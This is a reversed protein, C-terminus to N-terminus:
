NIAVNNKRGYGKVMYDFQRSVAISDKDYFTIVFGELTKGTIKYYDGQEANDQSIGISPSVGPGAFAPIHNITTGSPSSTLNQSSEIRDSMDARIIGDYVRPTVSPLNSKLKLRFQFIRATFDGMTFSTWPGWNDTNGESMTIIADLSPWDSMANYSDTSRFQTEVDWESFNSSSLSLVSDLTIWNSMLDSDTFGEAEILSQLRVTYIEGLDLLNAYYYYGLPYYEDPPGSFAIKSLMLTNGISVATDLGGPLTPFDTTEEIINLNTLSPISTIAKAANVSQNGNRDIAKVLYTGTRAQASTLTTNRDTRILPISAEWNGDNNPTYRILYEEADCDTIGTWNLQIVEGTVNIYLAEVDSPPVVKRLPVATVFSAVEGLALKQGNAAVAVVKFIHTIGLNEEDVVYRYDTLNTIDELEFGQGYDAYIEFQSFAGFQPAEWRLDVYYIYGQGDCGYTNEVLTLNRIESPATLASDINQNLAPNYDPIADTSEALYIDPALEVLTIDASFDDRPIVSKVLCDITIRSVEGIIILDGVEPVVGVLDFTRPDVFSLTGTYIAGDSSDRFKYGYSTAPLEVLEEDVTIQSASKSTVRAATGGVRMVDQTLLVYDGRTCVLNEFDVSISINEQRLKGQALMFRGFRYAQEFNTCAFTDLQDFVLSNSIDKGENYVTIENQEWGSIPDIYKVKIGDALEVYSRQSSFNWSNRPTFVQVPVTKLRDILMGYKGDIISLSAQCQTSIRNIMSNLTTNFDLIFNSQYRTFTYTQSPPSDPIEDCFNAWELFSDANLRSRDISRKNIEGTLLDSVIWAPNNTVQKEWAVGNYVDLVSNVVGSLNRLSGNIQNTAKIKLELFLHRKLTKIPQRDFRTSLNLISIDSVVQFSFPSYTRVRTIRVKYNTNVIPTFRASGYIANQSNGTFRILGLTPTTAKFANSLSTEIPTSDLSGITGSTIAYISWQDVASPFNARGDFSLYASYLLIDTTTAQQLEYSYYGGGIDTKSLITGIVQVGYKLQLNVAVNSSSIITSTGAKIGVNVKKIALSTLGFDQSLGPIYTSSLAVNNWPGLSEYLVDYNKINPIVNIDTSVSDLEVKNYLAFNQTEASQGNASTYAKVFLGDNFNVWDETGVPAFEIKLEVTATSRIGATDISQLGRPAAFDVIIEQEDGNSQTSANRIIQYGAIPGAQEENSLIAVNVQNTEVDGKYIDFSNYTADDWVGESIAPKNLDVLRYTVGTFNIIPTGGIQIDELTAPGFGFDYIAYLYQVLEGTEPDAEIETYSNAALNPFMKHSGYVKPVYGYKKSNNSQGSLSYMQSEAPRQAYDVNPLSPEEVPWIAGLLLTSGLAAAAAGYPGGFFGGVATSATIIVSRAIERFNGGKPIVALLIDSNNKPYITSWYKKEIEHGNIFVTFYEGMSVPLHYEGRMEDYIKQISKKGCIDKKIEVPSFANLRIRLM